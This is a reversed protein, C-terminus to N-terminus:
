SLQKIPSGTSDHHLTYITTLLCAYLLLLWTINFYYPTSRLQQGKLDTFENRVHCIYERENASTPLPRPIVARTVVGTYSGSVVWEVSAPSPYGETFDCLLVPYEEDELQYSASLPTVMPASPPYRVYISYTLTAEGYTNVASCIYTGHESRELRWLSLTSSATFNTKDPRTWVFTCLPRCDATCTIAPIVDGENGTYMDDTPSLSVTSGPGYLVDLIHLTTDQVISDPTNYASCVLNQGNMTRNLTLRLTSVTVFSLGAGSTYTTVPFRNTVNVGGIFWLVAAAPRCPSTVCTLSVLQNEQIPSSPPNQLAISSVQELVRLQYDPSNEYETSLNANRRTCFWVSHHDGPRPSIVLRFVNAFQFTSPRCSCVDPTCLVPSGSVTRYCEDGIVQVEEPSNTMLPRRYFSVSTAGEPVDCTLNFREGPIAYESSGDLTLGATSVIIQLLLILM